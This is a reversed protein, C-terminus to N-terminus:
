YNMKVFIGSIGFCQNGYKDKHKNLQPNSKKRRFTKQCVPCQYIYTPGTTITRRRKRVSRVRGGRYPQLRVAHTRQSFPKGFYSNESPEGAKSLEIDYRPEFRKDTLKLGQIGTHLFSKISPPSKGGTQDYGYFYERGVGDSTRVKYVLSYPEVLRKFGGYIMELLTINSGAEMIPTRLEAPFFAREGAGIPQGEFLELIHDNFREVATEFNIITNKPCVLYRSWLSKLVQFPLELLLSKLFGPSREFITIKLLTRLVEMRRIEIGTNFMISFVYDYLDASHRRQLLCKLKSALVEELKICKIKANCDHQDSYPHIIIREQVPLYIKDYLSVDLCIKIIFKGEGGYFDKFYLRAEYVFKKKDIRKKREVRNKEKEFIVGSAGQAFDCVKNLEEKLFDESLKTQVSFDLDNSYRTNEFYAKRLCNGGKLILHHRLESVTYIGALVWGFVYDRQVNSTHIEFEEAKQLIEDKCIM